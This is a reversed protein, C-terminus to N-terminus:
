SRSKGNGNCLGPTMGSQLKPVIRDLLRYFREIQEGKIESEHM